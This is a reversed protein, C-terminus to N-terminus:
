WDATGTLGDVKIKQYGIISDGIIKKQYQHYEGCDHPGVFFYELLIKNDLIKYYGIIGSKLNNYNKLGNKFNNTTGKLFQGNKFFRMFSKTIFLEIKKTKVLKFYSSDTRTYIANESILENLNQNTTNKALKFRNKKPRDSGYETTYFKKQIIPICCSTLIFFTSSYILIKNRKM